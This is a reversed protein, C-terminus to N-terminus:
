DDWREDGYRSIYEEKSLVNFDVEKDVIWIEVVYLIKNIFVDVDTSDYFDLSDIVKSLNNKNLKNLEEDWCGLKFGDKNLKEMIIEKNNKM